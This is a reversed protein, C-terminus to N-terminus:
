AALVYGEGLWVPLLSSAAWIGAPRRQELAQELLPLAESVRGSQAYAAGLGVGCGQITGGVAIIIHLCPTITPEMLGPHADDALPSVRQRRLRVIRKSGHLMGIGIHQVEVVRTSGQLGAARVEHLGHELGRALGRQDLRSPHAADRIPADHLTPPPLPAPGALGSNGEMSGATSTRGSRRSFVNLDDHNSFPLSPKGARRGRGM